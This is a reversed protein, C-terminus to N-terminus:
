KAGCAVEVRRNFAKGEATSNDAVPQEEGFGRSTMRSEPIDFRVTLRNKVAAARQESLKQNYAAAGSSDTFGDIFVVNGPFENICQAAKAIESDYEAGVQSSDHGFNIHLTLKTPCGNTDVSVGQPTTPCKDLSDFVGDGDTDLPCGKNDVPAGMSTTPCKDLYDYVGDKDSDLPCGVSNVAVGAPTQPCQDQADYVGDNDGDLQCGQANVAVGAPTQPCQDKDDTIGDADSDAAIPAPKTEKVAIPAAKMEEVAIPQPAPNNNGFQFTLGASYQLSHDPEPFDVLHRVDARLAILNDLIFYKIGAGYNLLFHDRDANSDPSSYIAGLGLAVYPVLKKEPTFHYLADLRYTEVKTDSTSADDADADTRTYVGEIAWNETLNYGLGVGWFDSTDLSLNGEFTHGGFMPSITFAGQQHEAAATLSLCCFFIALVSIKKLM